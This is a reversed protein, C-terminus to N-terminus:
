VKDPEVFTIAKLISSSFEVQPVRCSQEFTKWESVKIGLNCVIAVGKKIDTFFLICRTTLLLREKVEVTINHVKQEVNRARWESVKVGLNCVIAVCKKIDTFFLICRTTLLLSEKVDVTINHM